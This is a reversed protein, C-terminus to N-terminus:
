PMDATDGDRAQGEAAIIFLIEQQTMGLEVSLRAFANLSPQLEGSEVKNVYSPSLGAALSLSRASLGKKGRLFRIAAGTTVLPKTM